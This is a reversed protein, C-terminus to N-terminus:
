NNVFREYRAQDIAVIEDMGLRKLDNMYSDWDELSRQGLILKTMLEKTYTELDPIIKNRKEMEEATPAAMTTFPDSLTLHPYTLSMKFFDAKEKYGADALEKIEAARNTGLEFRPLFAYAWLATRSNLMTKGDDTQTTKMKTDGNKEFTAGEVGWETLEVFEPTAMYDFLKAVAEQNADKTVAFRYTDVQKVAQARILPDVGQKASIPGIPAYIAAKEGSPVNIVPEHWTASVWDSIAALKNEINKQSGQGGTEVLGADNLKKMYAIYDKINEQYWPTTINDAKADYYTLSTGLGFWQAIDTGYGDLTAGINIVEDKIGNGNVDQDQFAKLAEYFEDATKPLELGVKDLWDKRISMALPSGAPTGEYEGVTMNSAWYFNNDDLTSLKRAIEGDGSAYFMKATGDSYQDIIHNIPIFRGQGILNYISINDLKSINVFDYNLGAAMKTQLVTQYQDEPILDLELKIGRAALDETLKQFVPGDGKVWNSLKVQGNELSQVRDIGLIRVVQLTEGSDSVVGSDVTLKNSSCGAMLSTAILITVVPAVVKKWITRM